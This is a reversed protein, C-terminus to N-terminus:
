FITNIDNIIKQISFREMNKKFKGEKILQWDQLDNLKYLIITSVATINELEHKFEKNKDKFDEDILLLKM